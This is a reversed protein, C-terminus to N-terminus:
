SRVGAEALVRDLRRRPKELSRAHRALDHFPDPKQALRRFLNDLNYRRPHLRSDSLEDWDLPAAVPAGERGRVSYPAVATQGYGNRLYDLFVRRGRKDKRQELTYDGPRRKVLLRACDHAFDRVQRHEQGEARRLPVVLHLGKSGTTMLYPTLGVGDLLEGLERAAQRVLGFEEADPPDLDFILRDPRRPLDARALWLHPTICAQDALYVLTAADQAAVQTIEGGGEKLPVTVRGVWDPFHDPVRKHYFDEEGIGDPFRQMALPRNKAYPVMLGAARRYYHALDAKTHGSGPFLVKDPKGIEVERGDVELRM